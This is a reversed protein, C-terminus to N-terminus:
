TTQGEGYMQQMEILPINIAEPAAVHVHWTKQVQEAKDFGYLEKGDHNHIHHALEGGIYFSTFGAATCRKNYDLDIAGYPDFAENMAGVADLVKRSIMWNGIVMEVSDFIRVYDIPIAIMGAHEHQQMGNLRKALWNNPEIIDNGCVCFYHYGQEYARRLLKNIAKAIGYTDAVFLGVNEAPLGHNNLNHALVKATIDHRGYSLM